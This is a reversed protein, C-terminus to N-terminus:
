RRLSTGAFNDIRAMAVLALIAAVIVLIATGDILALLLRGPLQWLRAAIRNRDPESL